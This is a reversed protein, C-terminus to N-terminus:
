LFFKNKVAYKRYPDLTELGFLYSKYNDFIRETIGSDEIISLDFSVVFLSDPLNFAKYSIDKKDLYNLAKRIGNFVINADHFIITGNKELIKLCFQFDNFAAKDTHEGDIFCLNPKIVIEKPKIETSSKDICKIKETESSIQKLFEMMRESSNNEYYFDRGREDPQFEPRKDISYIYTCRPDLLFPQLTGGLHSGIELYCYEKSINRQWNLLTLFSYHDNETTQSKISSYINIDRNQFLQEIHQKM